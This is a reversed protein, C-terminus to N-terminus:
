AGRQVLGLAGPGEAPVGQSPRPRRTPNDRRAHRHHGAGLGRLGLAAAGLAREPRGLHDFAM